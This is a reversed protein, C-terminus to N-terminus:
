VDTGAHNVEIQVHSHHNEFGRQWRDVISRMKENAWVRVTGSTIPGPAYAPLTRDEEGHVCSAAAGLVIGLFAARLRSTM